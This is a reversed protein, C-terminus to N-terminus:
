SIVKPIFSMYSKIRQYFKLSSPLIFSYFVLNFYMLSIKIIKESKDGEDFRDWKAITELIKYTATEGLCEIRQQNGNESLVNYKTFYIMLSVKQRELSRKKGTKKRSILYNYTYKINIWESLFTYSVFIYM